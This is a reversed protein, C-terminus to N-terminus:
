KRRPRRTPQPKYEPESESEYEPKAEPEAESEPATNWPKTKDAIRALVRTFYTKVSEEGVKGKRFLAEATSHKLRQKILHSISQLFQHVRDLDENVSNPNQMQLELIQLWRPLFNWRINHGGTALTQYGKIRFVYHITGAPFFVTQGPKLVVHRWKNGFTANPQQLPQAMWQTLEEYTPRAMWGFGFAGEQVQIWTDFAHADQHPGTLNGGESLLAWETVDRWTAWDKSNAELRTALGQRLVHDRVRHLLCMQPDDLFDPTNNPLPNGVDLVNWPIGDKIELDLPTNKNPKNQYFFHAKVQALTKVKYSNKTALNTPDQVSVKRDLDEQWEFFKEMPRKLKEEDDLCTHIKDSVFIPIDPHTDGRRLYQYAHYPKLYLAEVAGPGIQQVQNPIASSVKDRVADLYNNSVTPLRGNNLLTTLKRAASAGWTNDEKKSRKAQPSIERLVQEFFRNDWDADLGLKNYGGSKEFEDLTPGSSEEPEESAPRDRKPM